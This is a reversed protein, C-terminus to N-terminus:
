PIASPGCDSSRGPSLLASWYAVSSATSRLRGSDLIGRFEVLPEARRASDRGGGGLPELRLAMHRKQRTDASTSADTSKAYFWSCLLVYFWHVPIPQNVLSECIFIERSSKDYRM